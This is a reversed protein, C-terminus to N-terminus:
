SQRNGASGVNGYDERLTMIATAIHWLRLQSCRSSPPLSRKSLPRDAFTGFVLKMRLGPDYWYSALYVPPCRGKEIVGTGYFTVLAAPALRYNCRHQTLGCAFIFKVYDGPLSIWVLGM